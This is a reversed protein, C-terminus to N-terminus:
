DTIERLLEHLVAITTLHYGINYVIKVFLFLNMVLKWATQDNEYIAQIYCPSDDCFLSILSFYFYYINMARLININFTNIIIHIYYQLKIASSIYQNNINSFNQFKKFWVIICMYYIYINIAYIHNVIGKCNCFRLCLFFSNIRTWPSKPYELLKYRNIGNM